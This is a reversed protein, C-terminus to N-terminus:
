SSVLGAHWTTAEGPWDSLRYQVRDDEVRPRGRSNSCAWLLITEHSRSIGVDVYVFHKSLPACCCGSRGLRGPGLEEASMFMSPSGSIVHRKALHEVDVPRPSPAVM